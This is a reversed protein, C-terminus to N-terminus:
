SHAPEEEAQWDSVDIEPLPDPVNAKAMRLHRLMNMCQARHYHGHTLVHVIAAGRTFTFTKEGFRPHIQTQLGRANSMEIVRGLDDTADALLAMLDDPTRLRDDTKETFGPWPPEISLRVPRDAIRDSWRRMCGIIHTLTAHLGGNEGPGIPFSCTFEDVTLPRCLDLVRRTAWHNHVLLIELPDSSQTSM